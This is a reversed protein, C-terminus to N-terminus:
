YALEVKCDGNLQCQCGLRLDMTEPDMGMIEERETMEGLNDRGEQVQVMCTTCIGNGGCASDMQVGNDTAIQLLSEGIDDTEIEIEKGDKIFVVKPM